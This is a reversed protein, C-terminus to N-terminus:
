AGDEALVVACYAAPRLPLIFLHSDMFRRKHCAGMSRICGARRSAALTRHAGPRTSPVRNRIRPQTRKAQNPNRPPARRHHHRIPTHLSPRGRSRSPGCRRNSLNAARQLSMGFLRGLYTLPPGAAVLIILFMTALLVARRTTAQDQGQYLAYVALLEGYGGAAVIAFAIVLLLGIAISATALGRIQSGPTSPRIRIPRIGLRAKIAFQGARLLAEYARGQVALAVFLVPIITAATAYFTSNFQTATTGAAIETGRM